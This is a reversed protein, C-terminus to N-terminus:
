AGLRCRVLEIARDVEAETNFRGLGFRLSARAQDDSLGIAKLVHSPEASTTACAAGSSIALDGALSKLLAEGHVGDIRINLNQPLRCEMSGNTHVRDSQLGDRLRDRLGRVRRAEEASTELCIAAAMGFGVIAPVDLTGSRLGREHGGGDILADIAVNKAVYLAGVGKPGYIKHASLSVLDLGLATADIPITGAAQAADCHFLAGRSKAIRLVGIENNAAMVSVLLTRETVAAELEELEILGDRRVGLRTVSFGRQELSQCPDLVSRHETEVTVVHRRAEPACAAAGKIALNNSETAGSTFVVDRFRVGILAAVQERAAEVAKSAKWGFPHNRSSANGFHESFFPLMVELVRPDVRTTAHSDMYITM